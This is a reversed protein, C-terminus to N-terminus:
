TGPCVCSNNGTNRDLITFVAGSPSLVQITAIATKTCTDIRALVRRDPGNIQLTILCGRITIAGTGGLTVGTCSTFQYDGTTSNVQLIKQGSEDQICVDFISTPTPSAAIIYPLSTSVALVSFAPPFTTLFEHVSCSWNSLDANTIGAMAPHSPQVITVTDPCGEQGRVRFDGIASLAVVPTGFGAGSYYCSLCFYLGTGPGSAAFNIGNAILKQAGARGRVLHYIPDTGLVIKPGEIAASWIARNLEAILLPSSGVETCEPDGLVIVDFQKFDATSFSLWTSGNVVTVLHGLATAISQENPPSPRMSPGLILVKKPTVAPTLISLDLGQSSSIADDRSAPLNPSVERTAPLNPSAQQLSDSGVSGLSSCLGLATIAALVIAMRKM